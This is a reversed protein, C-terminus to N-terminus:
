VRWIRTHSPMCRPCFGRVMPREIARSIVVNMMWSYNMLENKRSIAIPQDTPPAPGSHHITLISGHANLSPWLSLHTLGSRAIWIQSALKGILWAPIGDTVDNLECGILPPTLQSHTHKVVLTVIWIMSRQSKDTYDLIFLCRSMISESSGPILWYVARYCM